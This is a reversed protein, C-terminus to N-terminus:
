CQIFQLHVAYMIMQSVYIMIHNGRFIVNVGMMYICLLLFGIKKEKHHSSEPNARTVVKKDIM